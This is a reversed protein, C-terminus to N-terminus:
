LRSFYEESTLIALTVDYSRGRSSAVEGLFYDLVAADADHGLLDEYVTDIVATQKERSAFMARVIDARTVGRHLQVLWHARGDRDASRGVVYQYLADVYAADSGYRNVFESSTLFNVALETESLGAVLENTWHSRGASDAPRGLYHLYYVDVVHQLREASYWFTSAVEDRTTGSRLQRVWATRGAVDAERGLLDRYLSEVFRIDSGEDFTTVATGRSALDVDNATSDLTAAVVATTPSDNSTTQSSITERDTATTTADAGGNTLPPDFNGVFPVAFSNGFRAYIDHGFPAPNFPIFGDNIRGLITGEVPRTTPDDGSVLFYWEAVDGPVLASGDPAFLGIDDIGDGNVDAAVPRERVGPLGFFGSGFGLGPVGIQFTYDAVGDISIPAGPAAENLDISFANGGSITAVYTGVDDDGDGDFDGVFPFGSYGAVVGGNDNLTFSQDTDFFWRRGDFIGIEDGNAMNGDFNGAVPLGNVGSPSEQTTMDVIGDGDTDILWRWTSGIRGYIALKDFGNASAAPAALTNVFNGAFISDSSFGAHFVLDRNVADLNDPDFNFNGNIDILSSGASWVGIEARSDVTFRAVFDGGAVGDGSPLLVYGGPAALQSEGDLANGALDTLSDSIVLTFRDDLLPSALDLRVQSPAVFTASAILAPGTADGNLSYHGVNTVVSPDLPPTFRVTRGNQIAAENFSIQQVGRDTITSTVGDRIGVTASAGNDEAADSTIVDFYRLEITGDEFLVAEFDVTPDAGVGDANFHEIQRWQVVLRRDVGATGLLQYYVGDGFGPDTDWNDWLVAVVPQSPATVPNTLDTNLFNDFASGFSLLGNTSVFVSDYVGGYFPFSFGIPVETAANDDSDFGVQMGTAGIDEYEADVNNDVDYTPSFSVTLSQVLPTPGDTPKPDFLNYDPHGTVTVSEVRPGLVDQYRLQLPESLQTRDTAPAPAGAVDKQGDFIRVAATVFNLTGGGIPLGNDLVNGDLQFLFLSTSSGLADAFGQSVGNVFLEVAAGASQGAAAADADLITIGMQAFGDLDAQVIVRPDTVDTINDQDGTGSDDAPHLAVTAPVPAAFNEIELDYCNTANGVGVMRVYYYEQSVVPVVLQEKDPTPTAHTIVNGYRDLMALDLDGAVDEFLATVILKGTVNATVRYYDADNADHITLDTLIVEPVSGLVTAELISNNPEFQDASLPPTIERIISILEDQITDNAAFDHHLQADSTGFDSNPADPVLVDSMFTPPNLPDPITITSLQFPELDMNEPALIALASLDGDAGPVYRDAKTDQEAQDAIGFNLFLSDSGGGNTLRPNVGFDVPFLANTQWRNYLFRVNGPVVGDTLSSAQFYGPVQGHSNTAIDIPMTGAPIGPLSTLDGLDFNSAPIPVSTTPNPADAFGVPDLLALLDIEVGVAEAIKLM